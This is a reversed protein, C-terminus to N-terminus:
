CPQPLTQTNHLSLLLRAPLGQPRPEPFTIERAKLSRLQHLLATGHLSRVPLEETTALLVSVCRRCLFDSCLSMEPQEGAGPRPRRVRLRKSLWKQEQTFAEGWHTWGRFLPNALSAGEHQGKMRGELTLVCGKGLSGRLQVSRAWAWWGSGLM